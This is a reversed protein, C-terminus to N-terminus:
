TLKRSVRSAVRRVLDLHKQSFAGSQLRNDLYLLGRVEGEQKFPVCLVSRLGSLVVSTTESFRPDAMANHSILAEGEDFVKNVITQSIEGTTWLTDRDVNHTAVVRPEAGEARMLVFGREAVAAARATELSKALRDEDRTLAGIERDLGDLIADFGDVSEETSTM